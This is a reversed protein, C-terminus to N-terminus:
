APVALTSEQSAPSAWILDQKMGNQETEMLDVAQSVLELASPLRIDDPISQGDTVYAISFQREIVVELAEGLSCAEDLKTLMVGALDIAGYHRVTRELVSRQSTCPLLLYSDIPTRASSLTALQSAFQESAPHLGATDILILRRDRLSHLVTDLDRREDVVKVPIDLIRGFIRLQEHAAVRHCDTTVLAVQDAGHRLVHRAALKGVTTTKGAGTPGILAIVGGQMARDEGVVPIRAVLEGLVERWVLESEASVDADFRDLLRAALRASLGLRQLREELTRRWLSPPISEGQAHLPAAAPAVIRRSLLERVGQLENRLQELEHREAWQTSVAAHAGNEAAGKPLEAAKPTAIPQQTPPQENQPRAQQFEKTLMSAVKEGLRFQGTRPFRIASPVRSQGVAASATGQATDTTASAPVFSAMATATGTAPEAPQQVPAAAMTPAALPADGQPQMPLPYDATCLIEVGNALTRNALIVADPGLAERAQQLATRSDPAVFRRIQM